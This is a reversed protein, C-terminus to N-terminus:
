FKRSKIKANLINVLTQPFGTVMEYVRFNTERCVNFFM